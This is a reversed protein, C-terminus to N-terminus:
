DNHMCYLEKQRCVELLEQMTDEMNQKQEEYVKIGCVEEILQRIDSNQPPEEKEKAAQEQEHLEQEAILEEQERSQNM